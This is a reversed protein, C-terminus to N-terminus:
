KTKIHVRRYPSFPPPLSFVAASQDLRPRARASKKSGGLLFIVVVAVAVVAVVFPAREVIVVRRYHCSNRPNATAHRRLLAVACWSQLQTEHTTQQDLYYNLLAWYFETNNPVIRYVSPLDVLLVTHMSYFSPLVRYFEAFSLLLGTFLTGVSRRLKMETRLCLPLAASLLFNPRMFFSAAGFFIFFFCGVCWCSLRQFIPRGNMEM